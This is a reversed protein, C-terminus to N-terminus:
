VSSVGRALNRAVVATVEPGSQSVGESVVGNDACLVAVCRRSIDVRESGTLAAIKVVYDEFAGLSGLPKAVANWAARARSAAGEDAPAMSLRQIYDSATTGLSPIGRERSVVIV